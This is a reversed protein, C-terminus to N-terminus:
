RYPFIEPAEGGQLKWTDRFRYPRGGETEKERRTREREEHQRQRKPWREMAYRDGGHRETERRDVDRQRGDTGKM